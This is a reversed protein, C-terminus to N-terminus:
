MSKSTSGTYTSAKQRRHYYCRVCFCKWHADVEKMCDLCRLSYTAKVFNTAAKFAALYRLQMADRVETTGQIMKLGEYDFLYGAMWFLYSKGEFGMNGIAEVSIGRYKGFPLLFEGPFRRHCEFYYEGNILDEQLQLTKLEDQWVSLCDAQDQAMVCTGCSQFAILTNHLYIGKGALAGLQDRVESAHFEVVTLGVQQTQQLKAATCAHTSRVELVMRRKGDTWYCDYRYGLAEDRHELCVSGGVLHEVWKNGCTCQRTHFWYDGHREKLLAKALLHLEGEGGGVAATCRRKSDPGGRHAFYSVFPRRGAKGSPRVLSFRHKKGCHCVFPGDLKSSTCALRVRGKHDYAWSSGKDM